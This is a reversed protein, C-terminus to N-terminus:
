DVEDHHVRHSRALRELLPALDLASGGVGDDVGPARDGMVVAYTGIVRGPEGALFADEADLRDSGQLVREIRLVHHVRSLENSSRRPRTLVKTRTFGLLRDPAVPRRM